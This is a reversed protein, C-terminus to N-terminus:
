KHSSKPFCEKFGMRFGTVPTPPLVNTTYPRVCNSMLTPFLDYFMVAAIASMLMSPTPVSPSALVLFIEKLTCDINLVSTQQIDWKM